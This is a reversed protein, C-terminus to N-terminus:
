ATADNIPFIDIRVQIFPVTPGALLLDDLLLGLQVDDDLHGLQVDGIVLDGQQM